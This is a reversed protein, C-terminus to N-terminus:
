ELVEPFDSLLKDEFFEDINRSVRQWTMYSNVMQGNSLIPEMSNMYLVDGDFDIKRQQLQGKWNPFLSGKIFYSLVANMNDVKYNGFFAVYSKAADALEADEALLKDGREYHLRKEKAIQVSMYGDPSYILIGTPANGFPFLSDTGSTPMEIYSLLKWTGLLENKLSTM